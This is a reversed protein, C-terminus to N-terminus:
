TDKDLKQFLAKLPKQYLKWREVSKKYIPKRVQTISATRVIRKTNYFKLCNADWPVDLWELLRRTQTEQHEVLKEYEIEFISDPLISRWHEMLREYQRIREAIHEQNCAWRIKQFQTFWCSLAIDRVDRRCHIIKAKPFLTLIWGVMKYNDPMKDVVRLANKKTSKSKLHELQQLYALAMKQICDSTISSLAEYAQKKNQTEMPLTMLSRFAFDREGIGLVDPHSSLIQETLTTGSRPMGIIFAPREDNLGWGKTHYFFKEDFTQIIETVDKENDESKYDWGCKKRNMWYLRNANSAHRAAKDYEECGDYYYALSNHILALSGERLKINKLLRKLQNIETSAMRGRLSTALGNLAPISKPNQKLANKYATVAADVDGASALVHGIRTHIYPWEPRLSLVKNFKELASEADGDDWLSEGFSILLEINEPHSEVLDQLIEIALHPMGKERLISATGCFAPFYTEDIDLSKNFWYAAQELEGVALWVKGIGSALEASQPMREFADAYADMAEDLHELEVLCRGLNQYGIGNDPALEVAKRCHELAEDAFGRQILLPAMNAHVMANDPNIELAQDYTSIAQRIRGMERLTDAKAKIYESNNSNIEILRAYYNLAKPYDEKSFFTCGLNYLSDPYDPQIELAREFCAIAKELDNSRRYAEGLNLHYQAINGNDEVAKKLHRTAQELNGLLLEALGLLHHGESSSETQILDHAKKRATEPKGTQLLLRISVLENIYKISGAHM